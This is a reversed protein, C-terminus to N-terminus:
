IFVIHLILVTKQLPKFTTYSLLQLLSSFKGWLSTDRTGMYFCTHPSCQLTFFIIIMLIIIVIHIVIFWEIYTFTSFSHLETAPTTSRANRHFPNYLPAIAQGRHLPPPHYFLYKFSVYGCHHEFMAEVCSSTIQNVDLTWKFLVELSTVVVDFWHPLPLSVCM